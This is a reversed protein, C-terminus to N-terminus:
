FLSQLEEATFGFRNINRPHNAMLYKDKMRQLTRSGLNESSLINETMKRLGDRDIHGDQNERDLMAIFKDITKPDSKNAALGSVVGNFAEYLYFECTSPIIQSYGVGNTVEKFAKEIDDDIILAIYFLSYKQELFIPYDPKDPAIAAYYPFPRERPMIYKLNFAGSCTAFIIFLNNASAENIDTLKDLLDSWMVVDGNKLTIGDQEERGHIEFHILPIEDLKGTNSCINRLTDFLQASSDVRIIEFGIPETRFQNCYPFLDEIYYEGASMLKGNLLQREHDPLSEIIIIKDCDFGFRNMDNRM